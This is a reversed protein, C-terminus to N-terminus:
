LTPTRVAGPNRRLWLVVETKPTNKLWPVDSDHVTRQYRAWPYNLLATEGWWAISARDYALAADTEEDFGGM